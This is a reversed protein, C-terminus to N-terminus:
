IRPLGSGGVFLNKLLGFAQRVAENAPHEGDLGIRATSPDAYWIKVKEAVANENEISSVLTAELLHADSICYFSHADILRTVLQRALEALSDFSEGPKLTASLILQDRTCVFGFPELKQAFALDLSADWPVLQFRFYIASPQPTEVIGQERLLAEIAEDT